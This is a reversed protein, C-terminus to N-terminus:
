RRQQKLLRGIKIIRGNKIGVDGYFWPNGTGDLIKGNKVVIDYM